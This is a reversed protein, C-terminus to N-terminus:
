QVASFGSALCTLVCVCLLAPIWVGPRHEWLAWQLSSSQWCWPDGLSLGVVSDLQCTYPLPPSPDQFRLVGDQSRRAGGLCFYGWGDM